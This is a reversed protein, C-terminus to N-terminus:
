DLWRRWWHRSPSDLNGHFAALAAAFLKEAEAVPLGQGSHLRLM